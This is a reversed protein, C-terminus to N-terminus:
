ADRYSWGCRACRSKRAPIEAGCALCLSPEDLAEATTSGEGIAGEVWDSEVSESRAHVGGILGATCEARVIRGERTRFRVAYVHGGLARIGIVEGGKRAVEARIREHHLRRTWWSIVGAGLAVLGIFELALTVSSPM